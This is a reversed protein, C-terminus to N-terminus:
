AGVLEFIDPEDRPVPYAPDPLDGDEPRVLDEVSWGGAGRRLRFAVATVRSGRDVTAVVDYIGPADRQGHLSLVRAVEGGPKIWVDSLRAYLVPCMLRRVHRRPRLGAEIELFLVTFARAMRPLRQELPERPPRPQTSAPPDCLATSM